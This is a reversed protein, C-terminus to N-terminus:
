NGHRKVLTNKTSITRFQACGNLLSFHSLLQLYMGSVTLNHQYQDIPVFLDNILSCFCFYWGVFSFGCCVVFSQSM